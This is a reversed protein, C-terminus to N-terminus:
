ISGIAPADEAIYESLVAVMFGEGADTSTVLLGGRHTALTHCCAVAGKSARCHRPYIYKLLWTGTTCLSEGSLYFAFLDIAIVM